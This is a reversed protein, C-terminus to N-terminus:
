SITIIDKRGVFYPIFRNCVPILAISVTLAILCIVVGSFTTENITKNLIMLIPQHVCLIILSYVGIKSFLIFLAYNEIIKCITLIIYIILLPMIYAMIPNGFFQNIVFEIYDNGSFILGSIYLSICILLLFITPRMKLNFIDIKKSIYGLYFFPLASLSANLYAWCNGQSHYGVISFLLVLIAQIYYNSSLHCISYLVINIWFLTLLFYLPNNFFGGSLFNWFPVRNESGLFGAKIALIHFLYSTIYFFFFPILIKNIKKSLMVKICDKPSFFLGSVFYFLPLTLQLLWLFGYDGPSHRLVILTICLGKSIDIYTLRKKDNKMTIMERRISIKKNLTQM